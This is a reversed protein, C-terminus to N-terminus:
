NRTGAVGYEEKILAAIFKFGYMTAIQSFRPKGLIFDSGALKPRCQLLRVTLLFFVAVAHADAIHSKAHVYTYRRDTFRLEAHNDHHTEFKVSHRTVSPTMLDSLGSLAHGQIKSCSVSCHSCSWVTYFELNTPIAILSM